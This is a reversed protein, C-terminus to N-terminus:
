AKLIGYLTATTGSNYDGTNTLITISSIASTSNYFGIVKESVGSGNKDLSVSLLCTKKTSGAYGFIDMTIFTPITTDWAANFSGRIFTQNAQHASSASSGNGSLNLISYNSGTDSNFRFRESTSSGLEATGVLVLRLDTYTAPISSFTITAADAGLTTTAIPEYTTAM